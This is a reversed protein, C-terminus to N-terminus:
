LKRQSVAQILVTVVSDETYTHNVAAKIEQKIQDLDLSGGNRLSGDSIGKYLVRIISDKLRPMTTHMGMATEYDKTQLDVILTVLQEAGKKTIMPLVLPRMHIYVPDGEFEGGTVDEVVPKKAAEGEGENAWASPPSLSLLTLLLLCFRAFSKAHM